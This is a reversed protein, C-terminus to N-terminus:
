NVWSQSNLKFKTFDRAPTEQTVQPLWCKGNPLSIYFFPIFTIPKIYPSKWSGFM